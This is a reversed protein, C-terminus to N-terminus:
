AAGSVLRDARPPLPVPEPTAVPKTEFAAEPAARKIPPPAAAPAPPPVSELIPKKGGPTLSVVTGDEEVVETLELIEDHRGAAKDDAAPPADGDEAIIRRISALIEEMSPEPQGKPDSM